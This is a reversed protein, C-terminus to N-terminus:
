WNRTLWDLIELAGTQAASELQLRQIAQQNKGLDDRVMRSKQRASHQVPSESQFGYLKATKLLQCSDPITVKIGAGEAIGLIYECSPRQTGYESSLEMDIGWLGIECGEEKSEILEYVAHAILWSISNTFYGRSFMKLIDNLPFEVADPLEDRPERVYVPKDTSALFKMYDLRAAQEAERDHQEWTRCIEELKHLEYWRDHRPIFKYLRSIGWIEWADDDFPADKFGPATGLIAIKRM